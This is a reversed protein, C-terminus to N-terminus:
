SLALKGGTHRQVEFQFLLSTPSLYLPPQQANSGPFPSKASDISVAEGSGTAASLLPSLTRSFLAPVVSQAEM